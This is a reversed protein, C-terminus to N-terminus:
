WGWPPESAYQVLNPLLRNRFNGVFELALKSPHLADHLILSLELDHMIRRRVQIRSSVVMWRCIDIWIAVHYKGTAVTVIRNRTSSAASREADNEVISSLVM